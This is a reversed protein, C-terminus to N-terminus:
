RAMAALVDKAIPNSPSVVKIASLPIGLEGLKRASESVARYAAAPGEEDIFETAVFLFWIGEEATKAWFAAWVPHGDAAFREVLRRGDEIQDDLLASQDVEAGEQDRRLPGPSGEREQRDRLPEARELGERDAM